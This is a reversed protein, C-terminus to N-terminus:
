HTASKKEEHKRVIKIIKVADKGIIEHSHDEFSVDVKISSLSPKTGKKAEFNKSTERWGKILDIAERTFVVKGKKYDWDRGKVLVPKRRSKSSNKCDRYGYLNQITVNLEESAKKPSIFESKM